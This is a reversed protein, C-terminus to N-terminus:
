DVRIAHPIKWAEATLAEVAALTNNTFATDESPELVFLINDNKTYTAQLNEFAALEPNEDSFFTRYNNAFELKSMGSGIGFTILIAALLILWRCRIVGKTMKVSFRDIAQFYRDM